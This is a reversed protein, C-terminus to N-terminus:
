QSRYMSSLGAQVRNYQLGNQSKYQVTSTLLRWMRIYNFTKSIYTSFNHCLLLCLDPRGELTSWLVLLFSILSARLLGVAVPFEPLWQSSWAHSWGGDGATQMSQRLTALNFGLVYLGTQFSGFSVNLSVLGHPFVHWHRVLFHNFSKAKIRFSMNPALKAQWGLFVMCVTFCPQPLM